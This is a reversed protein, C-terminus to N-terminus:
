VNNNDHALMMSSAFSDWSKLRIIHTINTLLM